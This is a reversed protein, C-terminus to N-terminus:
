LLFNGPFCLQPLAILDLDKPVSIDDNTSSAEANKASEGNVPDDVPRDRKKQM